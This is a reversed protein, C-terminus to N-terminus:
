GHASGTSIPVQSLTLLLGSVLFGRVVILPYGRGM